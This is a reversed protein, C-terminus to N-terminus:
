RGSLVKGGEVCSLYSISGESSPAYYEGGTCLFYLYHVHSRKRVLQCLLGHCMNVFEVCFTHYFQNVAGDSVQKLMKKKLANLCFLGIWAAITLRRSLIIRHIM